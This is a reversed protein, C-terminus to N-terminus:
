GLMDSSKWSLKGFGFYSENRRQCFKIGANHTGENSGDFDADDSDPEDAFFSSSSAIVGCNVGLQNPSTEGSLCAGCTKDLGTGCQM